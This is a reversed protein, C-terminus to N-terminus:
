CLGVGGRATWDPLERSCKPFILCSNNLYLVGKALVDHKFTRNITLRCSQKISYLIDNLNFLCNGVKRGARSSHSQQMEREMSEKM